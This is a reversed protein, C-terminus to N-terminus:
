RKLDFMLVGRKPNLLMRSTGRQSFCAARTNEAHRELLSVGHM